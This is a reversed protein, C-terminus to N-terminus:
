ADGAMDYLKKLPRLERNRRMKGDVCLLADYGLLAIRKCFDVDKRLRDSACLFNRPNLKCLDFVVDEDDQWEPFAALVMDTRTWNNESIPMVIGNELLVYANDFQKINKPFTLEKNADSRWNAYITYIKNSPHLFTFGVHSSGERVDIADFMIPSKEEWMERIGSRDNYNSDDGHSVRHTKGNKTQYYITDSCLAWSCDHVVDISPVVVKDTKKSSRVTLLNDGEDMYLRTTGDAVAYKLGGISELEAAVHDYFEGERRHFYINEGTETVFVVQDWGLRILRKIKKDFPLAKHDKKRTFGWVFLNGEDNIAYTTNGDTVCEILNGMNQPPPNFRNDKITQITVAGNAIKSVTHRGKSYFGFAGTTGPSGLMRISGDELTFVSCGGANSFYRVKTNM